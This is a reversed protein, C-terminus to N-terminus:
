PGGRTMRRSGSSGDRGIPFKAELGLWLRASVSGTRFVEVEPGPEVATFATGYAPVAVEVRGIVALRPHVWGHVGAAVNPAIWPGIASRAGSGGRVDGRVAGLDVGGCLPVEIRRAGVRACARVVGAALQVRVSALEHDHTRLGLWVAGLELRLRSWGLGIAASAGGAVGPLAGIEPGGAVALLVERPVAGRQPRSPTQRPSADAGDRTATRDGPPSADRPSELAPPPVSIGDVPEDATASPDPTVSPQAEARATSIAAVAVPDVSLAVLLAAADALAHCDHAELRRVDPAAGAPTTTLDLHLGRPGDDVVTALVVVEDSSPARGLREEVADRVYSAEPCSAPADWSLWSPSEAPGAAIALGLRIAPGHLSLV